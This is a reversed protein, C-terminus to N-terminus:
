GAQRAIVSGQAADRLADLLADCDIPKPLVCTAGVVAHSVDHAASTVLIPIRSLDPDARLEELLEWGSMVPMMLDLVVATVRAERRLVALAEFGNDATIVAYGAEELLARVCDRCDADDDVLVVRPILQHHDSRERM